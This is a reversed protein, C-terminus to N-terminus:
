KVANLDYDENRDSSTVGDVSKFDSYRSEVRKKTQDVVPHYAREDRNRAIMWSKPDIHFYSTHGTTFVVEVVQCRVGDIMAPPM